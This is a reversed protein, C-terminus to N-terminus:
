KSSINGCNAASLKAGHRKILPVQYISLPAASQCRHDRAVHYGELRRASAKDVSCHCSRAIPVRFGVQRKRGM